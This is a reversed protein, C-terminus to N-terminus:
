LFRFYSLIPQPVLTSCQTDLSILVMRPQISFIDNADRYEATNVQACWFAQPIEVQGALRRLHEFSDEIRRNMTYNKWLKSVDNTHPLKYAWITVPHEFVKGISGTGFERFASPSDEGYEDM